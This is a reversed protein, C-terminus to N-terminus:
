DEPKYNVIFTHKGNQVQYVAAQKNLPNHDEPNMSFTCHLMPFDKTENIAKQLAPGDTSGARQIADAALCVSDYSLIANQEPSVDTNNEEMYREVFSSITPDQFSFHGLAIMGEVSDGAMELILESMATDGAVIQKGEIGLDTMQKAILAIEKYTNPVFIMDFDKDKVSSLQSRYDLDGTKFALKDVIEGGCKEFASIFYENLGDAYDSGVDYLIVAKKKGLEKYAYQALVKGQYPDTYCVRYVYPQVNGNEDITAKINTAFTAILPVENENCLAASAITPGSQAPGCIISCNHQDILSRVANVCEQANARTDGVVVKVPRGLVGGAANIDAEAMKAANSESAGYNAKEGTVSALVGIYIPDGSPVNSSPEAAASEEVTPAASTTEATATTSAASNGSCAALAFAITATLLISIKKKM